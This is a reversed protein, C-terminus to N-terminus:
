EKIGLRWFLRFAPVDLVAVELGQELCRASGARGFQRPELRSEIKKPIRIAYSFEMALQERDLGLGRVISEKGHFTDV